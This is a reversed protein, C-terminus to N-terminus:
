QTQIYIDGNNGLVNEPQGTGTYIGAPTVLTWVGNVVQLVKGNDTATVAPLENVQINISTDISADATFTGASVGNKLITLIANNVTPIDETTAFASFDIIYETGGENVIDLTQATEDWEASRVGGYVTYQNAATAVKILNTTSEFYITGPVYPGAATVTKVFNIKM